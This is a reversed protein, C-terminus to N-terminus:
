RTDLSFVIPAEVTGPVARGDQQAPRFRWRKAAQVAARDLSRSGSRSVVSVAVPEGNAGVEIRVLVKGTENNRLADAPYTPAPRSIPEPVSGAALGAPNTPTTADALPRAAPTETQGPLAAPPPPAPRPNRLAEAAAESLGSASRDGGAMPSPLPEFVQGDVRETKGTARYFDGNDRMDLWLLLFLILGIGFGGAVVWWVRPSLGFRSRQSAAPQVTSM